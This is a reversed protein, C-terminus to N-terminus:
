SYVAKAETFTSSVNVVKVPNGAIQGQVTGGNKLTLSGNNQFVADQSNSIGTGKMNAVELDGNNTITGALVVDKLRFSINKLATYNDFDNHITFTGNNELVASPHNELCSNSLIITGHNIIVGKNVFLGEVMEMKQTKENFIDSSQIIITGKNVLTGYNTLVGDGSITMEANEDITVEVNSSIVGHSNSDFNYDSNSISTSKTFEVTNLRSIETFAYASVSSLGIFLVVVCSILVNIFYKM